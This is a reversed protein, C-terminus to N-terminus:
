APRRIRGLQNVSVLPLNIDRVHDLIGFLAAQDTLDVTLTTIVGDGAQEMRIDVNGLWNSWSDDLAGKIRIQYVM